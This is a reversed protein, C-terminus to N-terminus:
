NAVLLSEARACPRNMVHYSEEKLSGARERLPDEQPVSLTSFQHLPTPIAHMHKPLFVYIEAMLIRGGAASFKSSFVSLHSASTMQRRGASRGAVGM